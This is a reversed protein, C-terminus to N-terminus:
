SPTGKVVVEVRLQDHQEARTFEVTIMDNKLYRVLLLRRPSDSSVRYEATNQVMLTKYQDWTLDTVVIWRAVVHFPGRELEWASRASGMPTSVARLRQGETFEGDEGPLGILYALAVVGSVFAIVILLGRDFMRSKKEHRSNM